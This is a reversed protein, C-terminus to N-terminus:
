LYAGVLKLHISGGHERNLTYMRVYMYYAYVGNGSVTYNFLFIFILICLIYIPSLLASNKEQIPNASGSSTSICGTCFSKEAAFSKIYKLAHMITRIQANNHLYVFLVQFLLQLNYLLLIFPSTSYYLTRKGRSHQM